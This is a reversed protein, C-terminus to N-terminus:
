LGCLIEMIWRKKKALLVPSSFPSRSPQIIRSQLMDHLLREIETKQTHSYRYPRVSVPGAGAKLQIAHQQNRPPPLGGKWNFVRAFKQVLQSLYPPAPPVDPTPAQMKQYEPGVERQEMLFKLSQQDTKIIFHRGLLYHRWKRVALVIAMLEEEYISKLRNRVGLVQSYYAIPHGEQTLVAGLGTGSADTEVSFVKSFNPLALIPTNTLASKLAMFAETAEKSWNFCDKRLQDTLPTAIRAYGDIFKRYYGTLGM